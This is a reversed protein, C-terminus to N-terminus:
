KISHRAPEEVITDLLQKRPKPMSLRHMTMFRAAADSSMIEDVGDFLSPPPPQAAAAVGVDVAEEPMDRVKCCLSACGRRRRRKDAALLLSAVDSAAVLSNKRHMPFMVYVGSIEIDGDALLPSLRSGVKLTAADAVLYNPAEMMVEAAKAPAEVARVEGTPFIVTAATKTFDRLLSGGGGGATAAASATSCSLYNGM